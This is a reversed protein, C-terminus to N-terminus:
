SPNLPDNPAARSLPWAQAQVHTSGTEESWGVDYLRASDPLPFGLVREIETVSM